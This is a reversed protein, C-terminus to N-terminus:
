KEKNQEKDFREWCKHKEKFLQCDSFKRGLLASSCDWDPKKDYDVNQYWWLPCTFARMESKPPFPKGNFWDQYSMGGFDFEGKSSVCFGPNGQLVTHIGDKKKKETFDAWWIKAVYKGTGDCTKCQVAFGDREAMGVYVGTGKCDPCEQEIILTHKGDKETHKM